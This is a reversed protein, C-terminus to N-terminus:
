VGLQSKLRDVEDRQAHLQSALHEVASRLQSVEDRLSALEENAAAAPPTVRAPTPTEADEHSPTPGGSAFEARLKEMERPEYLAHTVVHGRGASTLSVVLGKAKLSDLIPRLANLDAIPEM